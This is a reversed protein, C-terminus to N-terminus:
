SWSFLATVVCDRERERTHRAVHHAVQFELHVAYPPVVGIDPARFVHTGYYRDGSERRAAGARWDAVADPLFGWERAYDGILKATADLSAPPLQVTLRDPNGGSASSLMVALEARAHYEPGQPLAVRLDFPSRRPNMWVRSDADVPFDASQRSPASTLDIVTAGAQLPRRAARASPTLPWSPAALLKLEWHTLAGLVLQGARERLRYSNAREKLSKHLICYAQEPENRLVSLYAPLTDAEILRWRDAFIAINGDALPTRTSIAVQPLRTGVRLPYRQPYPLAHPVSPAGILTLLYTFASGIPWRHALMRVYYRDIIDYQERFLLAKNGDVVDGIAANAAAAAATAAAHPDSGVAAAAVNATAAAADTAAAVRHGADIQQWAKLTASDIIGADYFERIMAIGGDLYAEHMAAQDEFIKKQMTLFKTEYYGLDGAADRALVRSARGRVALVAGRVADPVFGLDLFGAYFAPGIMGAMGAWELYPYELFLQGYYGYVAQVTKSNKDVGRAPHWNKRDIRARQLAREFWVDQLEYAEVDV